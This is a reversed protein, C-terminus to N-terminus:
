SVKFAMTVFVSTANTSATWNAGDARKITLRTSSSTVTAIANRNTTNDFCVAPATMAEAATVPLTVRLEAGPTGSVSTADLALSLFCTDGVLRYSFGRVDGSAVTWTGSDMTYNGASFTPTQTDGANFTRSHERLGSAGTLLGTSIIDGGIRAKGSTAYIAYNDDTVTATPAASICLTATRTVTAGGDSITPPLVYVGALMGHTGSAATTITGTGNVLLGASVENADPKLSIGISVGYTNGTTGDGENTGGFYYLAQGAAYSGSGSLLPSGATGANLTLSGFTPAATSKVSQNFWDDVTANGSLTLTRSADGPVFTLTRNATLNSTTALTLVHSDDSDSITPTIGGTLLDTEIAHVEDQLDNIHAAQIKDGTAKTTFSKVSSPYSAAM